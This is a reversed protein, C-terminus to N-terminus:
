QEHRDHMAAVYHSVNAHTIMVGAPQGTSGSTYMVYALHGPLSASAPQLSISASSSPSDLLITRAPPPDVACITNREAVLFDLRSDTVVRRQRDIPHLPDLPLWAGGAKLIGLIGIGVNLSRHVSLGVLSEAVVGINRLRLALENARTNLERYTLTLGECALAIRGPTKRVQEEFVEHICRNIVLIGCPDSAVLHPAQFDLAAPHSPSM